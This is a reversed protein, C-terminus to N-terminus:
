MLNGTKGFIFLILIRNKILYKQIKKRKQRTFSSSDQYSPPFNRRHLRRTSKWQFNYIACEKIRQVWFHLLYFDITLFDPSLWVDLYGDFNPADKNLKGVPDNSLTRYFDRDRRVVFFILSITVVHLNALWSSMVFEFSLICNVSGRKAEFFQRYFFIWKDKDGFWFNAIKYSDFFFFFFFIWFFRSHCDCKEL